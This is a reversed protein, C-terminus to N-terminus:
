CQEAAASYPQINLPIGVKNLFKQIGTHKARIDHVYLYILKSNVFCKSISSLRWEIEINKVKHKLRIKCLIIPNEQKKM